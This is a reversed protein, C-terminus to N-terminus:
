HAARIRCETTFLELKLSENTLNNAYAITQRSFYNEKTLGHLTMTVSENKSLAASLEIQDETVVFNKTPNKENIRAVLWERWTSFFYKISNTRPLRRLFNGSIKDRSLELM